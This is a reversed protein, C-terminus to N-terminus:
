RRRRNRRSVLLAGTVVFGGGLALVFFLDFPALGLGALIALFMVTAIATTILLALREPDGLAKRVYVLVAGIAGGFAVALLAVVGFPNEVLVGIGLVFWGVAAIVLPVRTTSQTAILAVMVLGVAIGWDAILGLWPLGAGGMRLLVELLTAGGGVLFAIGAIVHRSRSLAAM